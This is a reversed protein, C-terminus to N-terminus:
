SGVLRRPNAVSRNSFELRTRIHSQCGPECCITHYEGAPMYIDNSYNDFFQVNMKAVSESSRKWSPSVIGVDVAPNHIATSEEDMRQVYDTLLRM